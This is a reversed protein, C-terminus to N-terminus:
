RGTLIRKTRPLFRALGRGFACLIVITVPFAIVATLATFLQGSPLLISIIKCVTAGVISHGAYILFSEEAFKPCKKLDFLDFAVWFAGCAIVTVVFPLLLTDSWQPLLPSFGCFVVCLIFVALGTIAQTKSKRSIFVEFGHIGIWAGILYPLIMSTDVFVPSLDLGFCCAIYFAVIAVLGIWKNKMLLYIVPCLAVLLISQYIFWFPEFYGYLFIGRLINQWTFAAKAGGLFAGLPTYYGLLALILWLTNWVLYPICLSFFRSKWKDLTAPLTYNRYFLAGSIIFFLPVAVRTPIRLIDFVRNIQAADRFVSFVSFHIFFVFLSLIFQVITKKHTFFKAKDGTM